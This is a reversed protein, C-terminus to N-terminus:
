FTFSAGVKLKNNRYNIEKYDDDFIAKRAAFVMGADFSMRSTYQYRMGFELEFSSATKKDEFKDSSDTFSPLAMIEFGAYLRYQNNIPVNGSVGLMFGTFRHEAYGHESDDDADYTFSGYGGYFNIQPGYFFGMPLFKYGGMVKLHSYNMGLRSDVKGSDRGVSGVSRAYAVKAFYMRTIWAEMNLDAGAQIGSLSNSGQPTKNKTSLSDMTLAATFIGLKGPEIKKASDVPTKPEKVPLMKVWDGADIRGNNRYHRIEGLFQNESISNVTGQAIVEADWEVIKKLLPHKKKSHLKKVIFEQGVKVLLDRPMDVTVQDGIVGLVLADYPMNKYYENIWRSVKLSIEDVNDNPLSEIEYFYTDSGNEGYVQMELEVGGVENKINVRILSGVGLKDAVLRVVEPTKLHTALNNKYRSFIHLLDSNSVYTCIQSGKIKREVEMFVPNAIAGNLEDTMPLLTCRKMSAQSLAQLSFLSLFLIILIKM